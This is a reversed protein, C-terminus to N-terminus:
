EHSQNKIVFKSREAFILPAKEFFYRTMNGYTMRSDNKM